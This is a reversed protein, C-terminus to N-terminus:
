REAHMIIEEDEESRREIMYSKIKSFYYQWQKDGIDQYGRSELGTAVIYDIVAPHLITPLDPIKNDDTMVTPKPCNYLELYESGVHDSNAKPYLIFENLEVDYVYFMPTGEDASEWQPYNADLYDQTVLDVKRWKTTTGNYIRARTIRLCNPVLISLDYRVTDDTTNALTRQRKCKAKWAIDM